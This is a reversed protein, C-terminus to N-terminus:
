KQIAENVIFAIKEKCAMMLAASFVGRTLEPGIGQFCEGLGGSSYMKFIMAPIDPKENTRGSDKKQSQLMVKARLYPFVAVTAVTRAVMGLLFAEATTLTESNQKRGSNENLLKKRILMIRKVQEFVTYQIAPKLCLVTYAQIGKYMGRIGDGESLMSMLIALPAKNGNDGTQIQTTWCDLPLTIPLHAWEAMSGILLNVVTGMQKKSGAFFTYGNKLSTYAFFYLAKEVASQFASTEIGAYFPTIGGKAYMDKAYEIMTMSHKENKSDSDPHEDIDSSNGDSDNTDQEDDSESSFAKLPSSAVDQNIEDPTSPDRSKSEAQMKTKLVELPYLASASFAGGLSGAIVEAAISDVM